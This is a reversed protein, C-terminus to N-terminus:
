AQNIIIVALHDAITPRPAEDTGSRQLTLVRIEVYLDAIWIHDCLRNHKDTTTVWGTVYGLM